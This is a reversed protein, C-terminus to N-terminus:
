LPCGLRKLIIVDKVSFFNDAIKQSVAQRTVEFQDALWQQTKNERHLWVLVKESTKILILEAM